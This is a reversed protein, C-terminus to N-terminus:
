YYFALSGVFLALIAVINLHVFMTIKSLKEEEVAFVKLPITPWIASFDSVRYEFSYKALLIRSIKRFLDTLPFIRNDRFILVVLLKANRSHALLVIQM